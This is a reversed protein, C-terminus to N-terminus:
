EAGGEPGSEIKGELMVLQEECVEALQTILRLCHRLEGILVATTLPDSNPKRKLAASDFIILQPKQKRRKRPVSDKGNM